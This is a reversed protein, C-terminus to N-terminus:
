AMGAIKIGMIQKLKKRKYVRLYGLLTLKGPETRINHIFKKNREHMTRWKGQM